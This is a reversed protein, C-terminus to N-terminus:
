ASTGVLFCVTPYMSDVVPPRWPTLFTWPRTLEVFSECWFTQSTGCSSQASSACVSRKSKNESRSIARTQCPRVHERCKVQALVTIPALPPRTYLTSAVQAHRMRVDKFRYLRAHTELRGKRSKESCSHHHSNPMTACAGQVKGAGPSYSSRPPLTYLTFAVQAHRMRVDKFSCLRAHTELRGKRSKESRSIVRTQCPRAHERCKVQALATIPALPRTYLTSAVQAHRM